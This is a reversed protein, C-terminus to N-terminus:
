IFELLEFSIGLVFCLWDVLELWMKLLELLLELLEVRLEGLGILWLLFGVLWDSVVGM